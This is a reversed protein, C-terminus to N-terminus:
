DIRTTTAHISTIERRQNREVTFTYDAPPPPPKLMAAVLPAIDIPESSVGSIAEILATLMERRRDADAQIDQRLGAIATELATPLRSVQAGGDQLALLEAVSVSRM